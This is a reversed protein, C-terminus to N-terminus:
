ISLIPIQDMIVIVNWSSFTVCWAIISLSSLGYLVGCSLLFPWSLDLSGTGQGKVNLTESSSSM